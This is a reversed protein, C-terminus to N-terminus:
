GCLTVKRTKVLDFRVCTAYLVFCVHKVFTFCILMIRFNIRETNSEYFFSLPFYPLSISAVNVTETQRKLVVDVNKKYLISLFVRLTFINYLYIVLAMYYAACVVSLIDM